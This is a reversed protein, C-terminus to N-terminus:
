MAHRVTKKANESHLKSRDITKMAVTEGTTVSRVLSVVGFAGKGLVREQRYMSTGGGVAHGM